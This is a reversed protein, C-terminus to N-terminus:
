KVAINYLRNMTLISQQVTYGADPRFRGNDGQMIGNGSVFDVYKKAWSAIKGADSFDKAGGFDPVGLLKATVALMKAAEQRSIAGNPDFIGNGRGNVIGLANACLINIDRTDSFANMNISRNNRQVFNKMSYGSSGEILRAVLQCFDNRSIGYQYATQSSYPVLGKEIASSVEAKAWNDPAAPRFGAGNNKLAPYGKTVNWVNVEDWEKLWGNAGYTSANNLEPPRKYCVTEKGNCMGFYGCYRIQATGGLNTAVFPTFGGNCRLMDTSFSNEILGGNQGAFAGANDKSNVAGISFCDAIKGLNKGVFGGAENFDAMVYAGTWSYKVTGFQSNIGILGGSETGTIRGTTYCNEIEGDNYGVLIGNNMYGKIDASNVCLKTLKGDKAIGGFLGQFYDKSRDIKLGYVTYGNGDFSGKFAKVTNFQGYSWNVAGIPTWNNFSSLDINGGLKYHASLNNRVANLEQATKIIYPNDSTGNGSSFAGASIVPVLSLVLLVALLFSITKKM